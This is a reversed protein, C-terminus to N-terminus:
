NTGPSRKARPATTRSTGTRSTGTRSTGTRSTGTRSTGTRSTGTRAATTSRSPRSAAQTGGSRGSTAASSRRTTGAPTVAARLKDFDRLLTRNTKQADRRLARLTTTLEKYADRGGRGLDKGLLQLAESADNLHREFRAIRREVERRTAPSRLAPTRGSSRTSPTRTTTKTTRTTPKRAAPMASELRSRPVLAYLKALSHFLGAPVRKASTAPCAAASVGWARSTQCRVYGPLARWTTGRAPSASQVPRRNPAGMRVTRPRPDVCGLTASRSSRVQAPQRLRERGIRPRPLDLAGIPAPTRSTAPALSRAVPASVSRSDLSGMPQVPRVRPLRPALSRPPAVSRRGDQPGIDLRWVAVCVGAGISCIGRRSARRRRRSSCPM